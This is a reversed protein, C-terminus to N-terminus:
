SESKIPYQKFMKSVANNLQSVLKNPNHAALNQQSMGRWVLKKSAADILDVVLQGKHITVTTNGYYGSWLSGSFSPDFPPIGGMANYLPDNSYFTSDQDVSGYVEIVLSPNADMDVKQLGRSKMEDEIAGIINAAAMPHAVAGHPAWAYTKFQAFNVNKDYTVNIKQAQAGTFATILLCLLLTRVFVSTSSKM